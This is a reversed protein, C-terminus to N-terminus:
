RTRDNVREKGWPGFESGGGKEAYVEDDCIRAAEELAAARSTKEIARAFDRLQLMLDGGYVSPRYIWTNEIEDDTLM